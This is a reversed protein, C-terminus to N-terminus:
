AFKTLISFVFALCFFGWGNLQSFILKMSFIGIMDEHICLVLIEM